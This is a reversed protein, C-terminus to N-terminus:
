FHIMNNVEAVIDELVKEPHISIQPYKIGICGLKYQEYTYLISTAGGWYADNLDQGDARISEMFQQLSVKEVKEWRRIFEVKVKYPIYDLGWFIENM